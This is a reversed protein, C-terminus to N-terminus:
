RLMWRSRSWEKSWRWGPQGGKDSVPFVLGSPATTVLTMALRPLVTARGYKSLDVDSGVTAKLPRATTSRSSACGTASVWLAVALAATTLPITSALKTSM